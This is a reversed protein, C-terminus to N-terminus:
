EQSCANDCDSYPIWGLSGSANGLVYNGNDPVPLTTIQGNNVLLIGNGRLTSSIIIQDDEKVLTLLSAISPDVFIKNNLYDLYDDNESCAVKGTALFDIYGSNPDIIISEDTSVFYEPNIDLSLAQSVGNSSINVLISETDSQIKSELYDPDDSSTVQVMYSSIIFDLGNGTEEISISGDSSYFYDPNIEINVQDYDGNSLISTSLSGNDSTIKDFLYDPEDGEAVQVLYSSITFDLGNETEEISISDDSSYFYNPNIDLSVQEYQGSDVISASISATQSTIKDFLFDPEDDDSVQVMYSSITFDLGVEDEEISISGDSSHFYNPNIDLSVQEYQGSDVISASISGTNSTIKDFLFDPEDDDSVQVLYASITFDLGQATEEISISGDSSYFYNPNIEINVQDYVGNSLIETSLSGNDSTIKNFLYDPVDGVDVQVLYASITFDLGDQTEEISISDDSSYFYDPNIDLNVYEEVDYGKSIVISSLESYLKGFLFNASPDQNSVKVKYFESSVKAIEGTIADYLGVWYLGSEKSGALILDDDLRENQCFFVQPELNDYSWTMISYLGEVQPDGFFSTASLSGDSELNLFFFQDVSNDYETKVRLIDGGVGEVIEFINQISGSLSVNGSIYPSWSIGSTTEGTMVWKPVKETAAPPTTISPLGSLNDWIMVSHKKNADTGFTFGSLVSPSSLKSNDKASVMFYFNEYPTTLDYEPKWRLIRKDSNEKIEEWNGLSGSIAFGLGKKWKLNGNDNFLYQEKNRDYEAIDKYMWIPKLKYESGSLESHYIEKCISGIFSQQYGTLPYSQSEAQFEFKGSLFDPLIDAEVTKVKFTDMGSTITSHIYQHIELGTNEASFFIYGLLYNYTRQASNYFPLQESSPIIEAVETSQNVQCYVYTNTSIQFSTESVSTIEDGIM